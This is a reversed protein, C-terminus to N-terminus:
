KIKEKLVGNVLLSAMTESVAKMNKRCKRVLFEQEAGKIATLIIGATNKIDGFEFLDNKRGEELLAEIANIEREDYKSRAKQMIDLESFYMDKITSFGKAFKEFIRLHSIIFAHLKKDATGAKGVDSMLMVAFKELENEIVGRFIEEKGAFYYYVSSKVKNIDRAIDELTTKRFGYRAFREAAAKLIEERMAVGTKSNIFRNNLYYLLASKKDIKEKKLYLLLRPYLSM